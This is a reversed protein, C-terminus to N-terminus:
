RSRSRLQARLEDWNIGDAPNQEFDKLRRDIEQEQWKPVPVKEEQAVIRDWLAQVYEVQEEASLEEFGPPPLPPTRSM